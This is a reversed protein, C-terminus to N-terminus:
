YKGGWKKGMVKWFNAECQTQFCSHTRASMIGHLGNLWESLHIFDLLFNMGNEIWNENWLGATLACPQPERILSVFFLLSPSLSFFVKLAARITMSLHYFDFISRSWRFKLRLLQLPPACPVRTYRLTCNFFTHTHPRLNRNNMPNCVDGM